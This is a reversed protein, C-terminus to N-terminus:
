SRRFAASLRCFYLSATAYSNWGITESLFCSSSILSIRCGVLGNEFAPPWRLLSFREDITREFLDCCSPGASGSIVSALIASSYFCTGISASFSLSTLRSWPNTWRMICSPLFCGCRGSLRLVFSPSFRILGFICSREGPSAWWLARFKKLSLLYALSDAFFTSGSTCLM